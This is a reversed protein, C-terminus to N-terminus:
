RKIIYDKNPIPSFDPHINNRIDDGFKLNIYSIISDIKKENYIGLLLYQHWTIKTYIHPKISPDSLIDSFDNNQRYFYIFKM